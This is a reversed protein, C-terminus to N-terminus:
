SRKVKNRKRQYSSVSSRNSSPDHITAVRERKVKVKKAGSMTSPRWSSSSSSGGHDHKVTTFRLETKIKRKKAKPRGTDEVNPPPAPPPNPDMAVSTHSDELDDFRVLRPMVRHTVIITIILDRPYNYVFHRSSTDNHM